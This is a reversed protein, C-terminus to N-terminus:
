THKDTHIHLIHYARKKRERITIRKQKSKKLVNPENQERTSANQITFKSLSKKKTKQLMVNEIESSM